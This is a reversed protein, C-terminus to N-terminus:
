GDSMIFRKRTFIQFLITVLLPLCFLIALHYGLIPVNQLIEMEFSPFRLNTLIEVPEVSLFSMIASSTILVLFILTGWWAWHKQKLIGWLMGVLFLISLDLLIYGQLEYLFDGFFPFVGNFLLPVHMAIIILLILSALVHTSDQLKTFWDWGANRNQFSLRMNRHRYLALLAIPLIPYLLIFSLILFPLASQPLDKSTLLMLFIIISLPLGFIIWDWLLTETVTRSWKQLRLHGIGLPICLIAIAYYGLVQVTINGFMFSGFGFGEYHFKGGESFLYFTYIEIPAIVAAALGVFLFILGILKIWRSLDRHESVVNM